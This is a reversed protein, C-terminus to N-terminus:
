VQLIGTIAHETNVSTEQDVCWGQSSFAEAWGGQELGCLSSQVGWKDRSQTINNEKYSSSLARIQTVTLHGYLVHALLCQSTPSISTPQSEDASEKMFHWLFCVRLGLVPKRETGGMSCDSACSLCLWWVSLSATVQLLTAAATLKLCTFALHKPLESCSLDLIGAPFPINSNFDSHSKIASLTFSCFTHTSNLLLCPKLLFLGALAQLLQRGLATKM